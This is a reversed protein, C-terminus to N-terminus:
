NKLDYSLDSNHIRSYYLTTEEKMLDEASGIGTIEIDVYLKGTIIM